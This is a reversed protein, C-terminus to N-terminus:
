NGGRTAADDAAPVPTNAPPAFECKLSFTFNGASDTAHALEPNRFYHTGELYTVFDAIANVSTGVGNMSLTANNQDLQTLWVFKTREIAESLVDLAIIPNVQNRKLGEIVKIRNELAKKRAEYIANEKIVADLAAKQAQLNGITADLTANQTSLSSYWMYGGVATGVVILFLIIPLVNTPVEIRPGAGSIKVPKRKTTGVLNVKIM